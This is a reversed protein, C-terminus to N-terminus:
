GKLSQHLNELLKNIEEQPINNFAAENSVSTLFFDFIREGKQRPSDNIFKDIFARIKEVREGFISAKNATTTKLQINYVISMTEPNVIIIDGGTYWGTHNKSNKLLRPFNANHFVQGEEIYVTSDGHNAFRAGGPAGTMGGSQLYDYIWTEKNAMHNMYADYVQGLGQGGFYHGANKSYFAERFRVGTLHEEDEEQFFTALCDTHYRHLLYAENHNIPTELQNLLGNLHKQLFKEIDSAELAAMSDKILDHGSQIGYQNGYQTQSTGEVASQPIIQSFQANLGSQGRYAVLLQLDGQNLLINREFRGWADKFAEAMAPTITKTKYQQLVSHVDNIIPDLIVKNQVYYDEFIDVFIEKNNIFIDKFIIGQNSAMSDEKEVFFILPYATEWM